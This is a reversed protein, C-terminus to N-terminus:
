AFEGNLDAVIEKMHKRILQRRMFAYSQVREATELDIRGNELCAEIVDDLGFASRVEYGMAELIEMGGEQRDILVFLPPKCPLTKLFRVKVDAVTVVDDFVAQILSIAEPARCVFLRGSDDECKDFPVPGIQYGQRGAALVLAEVIPRGANPIGAVYRLDPVDEIALEFLKDGIMDLIDEDLVGQKDGANTATRLNCFVPSLAAGAYVAHPQRRSKHHALPREQGSAFFTFVGSMEALRQLLM